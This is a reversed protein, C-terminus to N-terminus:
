LALVSPPLLSLPESWTHRKRATQVTRFRDPGKNVGAVTGLCLIWRDDEEVEPTRPRMAVLSTNLSFANLSMTSPKEVRFMFTIFLQQRRNRLKHKVYIRVSLVSAATKRHVDAVTHWALAAPRNRTHTRTTDESAAITGHRDLPCQTPQLRHWRTSQLKCWDGIRRSRHVPPCGHLSGMDSVPTSNPPTSRDTEDQWVCLLGKACADARQGEGNGQVDVCGM